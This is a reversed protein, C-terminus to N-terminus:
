LPLRFRPGPPDMADFGMALYAKQAGTNEPHTGVTVVACGLREAERVAASVLARGVGSGRAEEVVFVHELDLARKSFQLKILRVLAAYGVLAGGQEAVIVRAWPDDGLCHLALSEGTLLPTDGHFAALQTVMDFVGDVDEARMPRVVLGATM